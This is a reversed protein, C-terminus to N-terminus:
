LGHDDGTDDGALGEPLYVQFHECFPQKTYDFGDAGSSNIKGRIKHCVCLDGKCYDKILPCWTNKKTSM